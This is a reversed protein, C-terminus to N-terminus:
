KQKKLQEILSKISEVQPNQPALELFKQFNKIAEQFNNKNVLAYGLKLYALPWDPKIKSALTYYEIAQDVQAAQFFIEAVNYALAHDNPSLDVAKKLYEQARVLDNQVLYLEGIGAFVKAVNPDNKLEPDKEKIKELVSNYEALAKDYEKMERYCNGINLKIWYFEPYKEVLEQFVALAGAYKEQDYLSNGQILLSKINDKIAGPEITEEIKRLVIKQPPNKFQSVSINQVTPTFGEKSATVVFVGTGLGTFAWNGKKDTTAISDFNFNQAEILIKAGEVPNGSEDVVTGFIRGMGRGEQSFAALPLSIILAIIAVFIRRSYIKM